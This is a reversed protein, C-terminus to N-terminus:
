ICFRSHNPNQYIMKEEHRYFGVIRRKWRLSDLRELSVTSNSLIHLMWNNAVVIGIHSPQKNIRLLICDGAQSPYVPHWFGLHTRILHFIHQENNVSYYDAAYSPADVNFQESLVLRVLGWCDLGDRDRGREKFTLGMYDSVWNPVEDNLAELADHKEKLQRQWREQPSLRDVDNPLTLTKYTM